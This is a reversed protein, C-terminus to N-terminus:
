KCLIVIATAYAGCHSISVTSSTYGKELFLEKARGYLQLKKKGHHIGSLEIERMDLMVNDGADIAKIFSEKCAFRGSLYPIPDKKGLCYEIEIKSYVRELFREGYKQYLEAIRKNEVIDNGVSISNM